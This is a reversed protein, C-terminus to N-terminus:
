SPPQNLECDEGRVGEEAGPCGTRYLPRRKLARKTAKAADQQDAGPCAERYGPLRLKSRRQYLLSAM